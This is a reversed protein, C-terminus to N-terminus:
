RSWLVSHCNSFTTKIVEVHNKPATATHALAEDRKAQWLRYNTPLVTALQQEISTIPTMLSHRRAHVSALWPQTHTTFFKAVVNQAIEARRSVRGQPCLPRNTDSDRLLKSAQELAKNLMTSALLLAGGDGARLTAM